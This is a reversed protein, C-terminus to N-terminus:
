SYATTSNYNTIRRTTRKLFDDILHCLPLPNNLFLDSAKGRQCGKGGPKDRLLEKKQKSYILGEKRFEELRRISLVAESPRSLESM